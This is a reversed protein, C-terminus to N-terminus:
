VIRAHNHARPLASQGSRMPQRFPPAFFLASRACTRAPLAAAWRSLADGGRCSRPTSLPSFIVKEAQVSLLTRARTQESLTAWVAGSDRADCNSSIADLAVHATAAERTAWRIYIYIYIFNQTVATKCCTRRRGTLARTSECCRVLLACVFLHM